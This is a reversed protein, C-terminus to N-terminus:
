STKLWWEIGRYIGMTVLWVIYGLVVVKGFPWGRYFGFWCALVFLATPILGFLVMRVFDASLASDNNANTSIFWLAITINLPIVSVISALTRSKESIFAIAALLGFSIFLQYIRQTSM